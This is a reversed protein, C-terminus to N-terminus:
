DPRRRNTGLVFESSRRKHEMGLFVASGMPICGGSSPLSIGCGIFDRTFTTPGFFGARVSLAMQAFARPFASFFCLAASLVHPLAGSADDLGAV